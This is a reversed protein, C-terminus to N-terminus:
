HRVFRQISIEDMSLQELRKEELTFQMYKKERIKEHKKHEFSADILLQQKEDMKKRALQTLHQQKQIAEQLFLMSSQMSQIDQISVKKALKLRADAELSEKRKLLHYLATAVEEFTKVAQSYINEAEEKEREKIDMLKQLSYQFIM